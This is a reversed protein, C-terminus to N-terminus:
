YIKEASFSVCKLSAQQCAPMARMQRYLARRQLSHVGQRRHQQQMQVLVLVLRPGDGAQLRGAHYWVPYARESAMTHSRLDEATSRGGEPTNCLMFSCHSAAYCRPLGRQLTHHAQMSGHVPLIGPEPLRVQLKLFDRHSLPPPAQPLRM